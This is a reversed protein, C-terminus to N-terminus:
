ANGAPVEKEWGHLLERAIEGTELLAKPLELVWDLAKLQGDLDSLVLKIHLIDDYSVLHTNCLSNQCSEIAASCEEKAGEIYGLFGDWTENSTLHEAHVAARVALRISGVDPASPGASAQVRRWEDYSYNTM